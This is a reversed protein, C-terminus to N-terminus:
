RALVYRDRGAHKGEYLARDAREVAQELTEGHAVQALGITVRQPLAVQGPLAVPSNRVAHLFREIAAEAEATDEALMLLLFEEGGYRYLRDSPRLIRRLTDALHRLALDGVLHGHIDNVQKFHDIDFMAVFFLSGSRRAHRQSLVFEGELSYRLPLGTLPDLRVAEALIRTKFSALRQVLGAQAEEFNALAAGDGPHGELVNGCLVRIADHMRRHLAALQHAKRADLRELEPLTRALWHGFHCREHADPALMQEGPPERTLACRLVRRTWDLHVDMAADLEAIADAARHAQDSM